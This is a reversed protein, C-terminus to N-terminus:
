QAPSSVSEGIRVHSDGCSHLHHRKPQLYLPILRHGLSRTNPTNHSFYMVVTM